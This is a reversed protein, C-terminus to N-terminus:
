NGDLFERIRKLKDEHCCSKVEHLNLTALLMSAYASISKLWAEVRDNGLKNVIDQKIEFNACIDHLQSVADPTRIMVRHTTEMNHQPISIM